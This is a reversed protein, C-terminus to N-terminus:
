DYGGMPGSFANRKRRVAKQPRAGNKALWDGLQAPTMKLAELERAGVGTQMHGLQEGVDILSVGAKRVKYRIYRVDEPNVTMTFANTLLDLVKKDKKNVPAPGAEAPPEAAPASSAVGYDPSDEPIAFGLAARGGGKRAQTLEEKVLQRLQGLKVKM